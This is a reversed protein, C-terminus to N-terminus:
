YSPVERMDFSKRLRTIISKLRSRVASESQDREEALEACTSGAMRDRLLQKDDKDLWRSLKQWIEKAVVPSSPTPTTPDAREGVQEMGGVLRRFDRKKAHAYRIRRIVKRRLITALLARLQEETEIEAVRTKLIAEYTSQELSDPDIRSSGSARLREARAIARIPAACQAILESSAASDGRAHAQFLEKLTRPTSTHVFDQSNALFQRQQHGDKSNARHVFRNGSISM